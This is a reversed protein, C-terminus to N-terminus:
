FDKIITIIHSYFIVLSATDGQWIIMTNGVEEMLEQNIQIIQRTIKSEKSARIIKINKMIDQTTARIIVKTTTTIIMERITAETELVDEGEKNTRSILALTINLHVTTV